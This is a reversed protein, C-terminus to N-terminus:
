SGQCDMGAASSWSSVWSVSSCQMPPKTSAIVVREHAWRGVDIHELAGADVLRHDGLQGASAAPEV